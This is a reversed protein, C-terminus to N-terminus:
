KEKYMVMITFMTNATVTGMHFNVDQKIDLIQSDDISKLFNNVDDQIKELKKDHFLKIKM